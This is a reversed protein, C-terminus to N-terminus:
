YYGVVSTILLGEPVTITVTNDANTKAHWFLLSASGSMVTVFGFDMEGYSKTHGYLTMWDLMVSNYTLNHTDLLTVHYLKSLPAPTTYTRVSILGSSFERQMGGAAAAAQKAENATTQANKAAAAAAAATQGASNALSTAETLSSEMAQIKTTHGEATDEVKQVAPVLKNNIYEKILKPAEDFKAKLEEATLGNDTNPNDGLQSIINLEDTMKPIAM